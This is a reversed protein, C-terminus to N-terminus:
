VCDLDPGDSERMRIQFRWQARRFLWPRGFRSFVVVCDFLPRRQGRQIESASLEDSRISLSSVLMCIVLFLMSVAVPGRSQNVPATYMSGIAAGDVVERRFALLTRKM